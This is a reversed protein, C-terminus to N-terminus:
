LVEAFRIQQRETGFQGQHQQQQPSPQQTQQQPVLKQQQMKQGAPKELEFWQQHQAQQQQAFLPELSWCTQPVTSNANTTLGTGASPGYVYDMDDSSISPSTFLKKSNGPKAENNTGQASSQVIDQGQLGIHHRMLHQQQQPPPPPHLPLHPHHQPHHHLPLVDEAQDSCATTM